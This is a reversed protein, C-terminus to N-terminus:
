QYGQRDIFAANRALDNIEYFERADFSITGVFNDM